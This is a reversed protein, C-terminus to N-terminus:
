KVILLDCKEQGKMSFQMQILGRKFPWSDYFVMNEKEWVHGRLVLQLRYKKM